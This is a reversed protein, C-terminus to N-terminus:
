VRLEYLSIKNESNAKKKIINVFIYLNLKTM